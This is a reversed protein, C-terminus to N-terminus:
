ASSTRTSASDGELECVSRCASRAYEYQLMDDKRRWASTSTARTGPRTTPSSTTRRCSRSPDRRRGQDADGRLAAGVQGPDRRVRDTSRAQRHVVRRDPVHDREVPQRQPRDGAAARRDQGRLGDVEVPRAPQRQGAAPADHLAGVMSAKDRRRPLDGRPAPQQRRHEVDVRLRHVGTFRGPDNYKEAAKSPRKGPRGIPRHRAALGAGRPVHRPSPSSSRSRRRSARRGGEQVMDYWRRGTPDALMSPDGAYLRPFFGMNDSHDAVVLFDLPRASSSRCAPRPPSSRAARSATPTTPLLRAGFAGADM